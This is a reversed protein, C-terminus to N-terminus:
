SLASLLFQASQKRLKALNGNVVEYDIPTKVLNPLDQSKKDSLLRESLDVHQLLTIFRDLGRNTNPITIFNKEFLICLVTGHFSDTIVFEADRIARLWQPIDYQKGSNSHLLSFSEINDGLADKITQTVEEVETSQDLVYSAIKRGSYVPQKAMAEDYFAPAVLLTPDLAVLCDERGLTDRCITVGTNERVSVARFQSLLERAQNTLNPYSWESLGFSAAYSIGRVVRPDIFDLFYTMHADDAHYEFRWVQDSGVIVAELGYRATAKKLDRSTRLEATGNPMFKNIFPYHVARKKESSRAGGLDQGPLRRLLPGVIQNLVSREPKKRLFLPKYGHEELFQYLTVVQLIGGLNTHLPLTLLGILKAM